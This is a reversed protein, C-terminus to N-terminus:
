TSSSTAKDQSGRLRKAGSGAGQSDKFRTRRRSNDQRGEPNLAQTLASGKSERPKRPRGKKPAQSPNMTKSNASHLLYKVHKDIEAQIERAKELPVTRLIEGVNEKSQAMLSAYVRRQDSARRESAAQSARESPHVGDGGNDDDFTPGLDYGEDVVGDWGDGHGAQQLVGSVSWAEDEGLPAKRWRNHVSSGDFTHHLKVGKYTGGIFRVLVAFYHSCLLGHRLLKLCSCLHFGDAGFVVVHSPKTALLNYRVAVVLHIPVPDIIELFATLSTRAWQSNDETSQATPELNIKLDQDLDTDAPAEEFASFRNHSGQIQARLRSNDVPSSHGDDGVAGATILEVDYSQSGGM